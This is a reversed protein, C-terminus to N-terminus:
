KICKCRPMCILLLLAVEVEILSYQQTELLEAGETRVAVVTEIVCPALPTLMTSIFAPCLMRIVIIIIIIMIAIM